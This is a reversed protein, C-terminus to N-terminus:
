WDVAVAVAVVVLDEGFDEEDEEDEEPSAVNTLFFVL